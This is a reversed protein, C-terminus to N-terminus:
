RQRRKRLVTEPPKKDRTVKTPAPSQLMQRIRSFIKKREEKEQEETLEEQTDDAPLFDAPTFPESRKKPDRNIEALVACIQATLGRDAQYGFPELNYFAMWELLQTSSMNRMMGDM